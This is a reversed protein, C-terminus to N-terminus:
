ATLGHVFADALAAAQRYIDPPEPATLATLVLGRRYALFAQAAVRPDLSPRVAGQTLGIEIFATLQRMEAEGQQLTLRRLGTLEPADGTSILQLAVAGRFRSDEQLLSLSSVLIRRAIEGFSGGAAIAEDLARSGTQAANEILSAFLASKSGYHHYIAGRTVGAARAVDELRAAAYGERGFVVLAADLLEQRTRDSDQRTRRMVYIM